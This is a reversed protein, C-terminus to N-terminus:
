RQAAPRSGPEWLFQIREMVPRRQTNHFAAVSWGAGDRVLTYTQVKGPVAPPRDGTYTDGRTTVIAVDPHVFRVSLYSDILRTGALVGAFLARHSAVIDDRGAYHTGVWSTYTADPTFAAGYAEADGADWAHVLAGLTACVARHDPGGAAAPGTVPVAACDPRGPDRPASTASLWRLGGAGAAVLGAVAAAIRGLRRRTPVPTM